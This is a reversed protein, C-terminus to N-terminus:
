RNTAAFQGLEQRDLLRLHEEIERPHRRELADVTGIDFWTGEHYYPVVKVKKILASVFHSMMDRTENTSTVERLIPLTSSSIVLTGMTVAHDFPPKERFETVRGGKVTAVGVPVVYNKSLVLTADARARKHEAVLAKVDLTSMVDAYYVLLNDFEGVKHREIANMLAHASGHRDALDRSYAIRAGVKSGDEFYSEVEEAKYGTLLTIDQLGGMVIQRIAYELAPRMRPGIPIMTKQFYNTLPKLRSGEGGCLVAARTVYGNRAPMPHPM